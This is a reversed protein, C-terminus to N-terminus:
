LNKEEQKKREYENYYNELIKFKFKLPKSPDFQLDNKEEKEKKTGFVENREIESPLLERKVKRNRYLNKSRDLIDDTAQKLGELTFVLKECSLLKLVNM